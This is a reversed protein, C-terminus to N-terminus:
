VGSRGHHYRQQSQRGPKSQKRRALKHTVKCPCQHGLMTTNHRPRQPQPNDRPHSRQMHKHRFSASRATPQMQHTLRLFEIYYTSKHTSCCHLRVGTKQSSTCCRSNTNPKVLCVQVTSQGVRNLTVTPGQGPKARTDALTRATRAEVSHNCTHACEFSSHM